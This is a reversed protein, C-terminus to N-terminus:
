YANIKKRIRVTNGKTNFRIDSCLARILKLGRGSELMLNKDCPYLGEFIKSYDFGKGEDQIIINITDNDIVQLTATISKTCLGKNGHFAGNTILENLILRFEYEEDEPIERWSKIKSIISDIFSRIKKRDCGTVSSRFIVQM